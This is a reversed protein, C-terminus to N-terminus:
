SAQHHPMEGRQLILRAHPEDMPRRTSNTEGRNLVDTNLEARRHQAIEFKALFVTWASWIVSPRPGCRQASIRRFKTDPPHKPCNKAWWGFMRMVSMRFSVAACADVVVSSKSTAIRREGRESPRKSRALAVTVQRIATHPGQMAARTCGLDGTLPAMSSRCPVHDRGNTEIRAYPHDPTLSPGLM